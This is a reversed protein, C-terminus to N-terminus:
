LSFLACRFALSAQLIATKSQVKRLFLAYSEYTWDVAGFVTRVRLLDSILSIFNLDMLLYINIKSFTHFVALHTLM